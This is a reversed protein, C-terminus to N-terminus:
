CHNALVTCPGGPNHMFQSVLILFSLICRLFSNQSHSSLLFPESYSGFAFQIEPKVANLFKNTLQIIKLQVPKQLTRNTFYLNWIFIAQSYVCAMLKKSSHSLSPKVSVKTSQKESCINKCSYKRFPNKTNHWPKNIRTFILVSFTMYEHHM